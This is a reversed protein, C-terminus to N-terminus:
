IENSDARMQIDGQTIRVNGTFLETKAKTDDINKDAEIVVPQDADHKGLLWTQAAAPRFPAATSCASAHTKMM